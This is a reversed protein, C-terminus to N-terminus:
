LQRYTDIFSGQLIDGFLMAEAEVSRMVYEDETVGKKDLILFFISQMM